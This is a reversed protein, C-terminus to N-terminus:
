LENSKSILQKKIEEYAYETQTEMDNGYLAAKEVADTDIDGLILLAKNEDVSCEMKSLVNQIDDTTTEWALSM